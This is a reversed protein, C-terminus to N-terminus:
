YDWLYSRLYQKTIFGAKTLFVCKLNAHQKIFIECKFQVNTFQFYFHNELESDRARKSENSRNKTMTNQM